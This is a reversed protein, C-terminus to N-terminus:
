VLICGRGLGGFRDTVRRGRAGVFLRFFRFVVNDERLSRGETGRDGLLWGRRGAFRFRHGVLRVRRGASEVRVGLFRLLLWRLLFWGSVVVVDRREPADPTRRRWGVLSSQAFGASCRRRSMWAGRCRRLEPRKASVEGAARHYPTITERSAALWHGQADPQGVTVPLRASYFPTARSM